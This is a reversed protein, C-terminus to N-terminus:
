SGPRARSVGPAFSELSHERLKSAWIRGPSESEDDDDDTDREKLVGRQAEEHATNNVAVVTDINLTYGLTGEEEL